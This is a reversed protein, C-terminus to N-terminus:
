VVMLIGNNLKARILWILGADDIRKRSRGFLIDCNVRDIFKERAPKIRMWDQQLNESTGAQLSVPLTGPQRPEENTMPKM